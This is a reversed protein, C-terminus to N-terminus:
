VMFNPKKLIAQHLRTNFDTHTSNLSVVGSIIRPLSNSSGTLIPIVRGNCLAPMQHIAHELEYVCWESTAYDSSVVIVIKDAEFILRHREGSVSFGPIMSDEHINVRFVSHWSEILPKLENRVWESMQDTYSIYVVFEEFESLDYLLELARQSDRLLQLGTPRPSNTPFNLSPDERTSVPCVRHDYHRTDTLKSNPLREGVLLGDSLAGSSMIQISFLLDIITLFM